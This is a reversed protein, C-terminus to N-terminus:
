NRQFRARAASVSAVYAQTQPFLGLAVVSNPGQYYGALALGENGHFGILWLLFRVSMRINDDCKFILFIEHNEPPPGIIIHIQHSFISFPNSIM